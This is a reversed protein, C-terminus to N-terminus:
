SRACRATRGCCWPSNGLGSSTAAALDLHWARREQCDADTLSDEGVLAATYDHALNVTLVDGTSAWDVASTKSAPDYFV